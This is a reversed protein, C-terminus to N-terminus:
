FADEMVFAMEDFDEVAVVHARAQVLVEAEGVFVTELVDSADGFHRFEEGIAADDHNGREDRRVVFEAAEGSFDDAVRIEEFDVHLGGEFGAGGAIGFPEVGLHLGAFHLLEGAAIGPELLRVVGVKDDVSLGGVLIGAEGGEM